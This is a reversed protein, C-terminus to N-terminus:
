EFEVERGAKATIEGNLFVTTGHVLTRVPWGKLTWGNYPSWNAKNFLKGNEITKEKNMDVLVLDADYGPEIRGKNKVRFIEYPRECCWHSIEELTCHGENSRNFMLPLLTEVGPMGSPAKGFPQEKEEITHPAHDTAMIDIVGDKLAQWLAPGHEATRVPPNMQVYTGLRDYDEPAKLLFHQPCLEVTIHETKNERLFEAEDKTTLHLIHLRRNYKKSLRVAQQTALMAAEVSRIRYHDQVDTSGAYAKYNAQITAEDEAHVAIIRDGNGFIEDLAEEESVLLNGTSSGMFIKIGPVNPVSNIEDLNHGTAGIFFNYNAVCKEAALAKKAAMSDACITNPVTNPMEFFSTVGGAAAGRSGTELDEKHELGPDRFHVQDDLAGYLIHLGSADITEDAPDTLSPGVNTITGDTILIDADRRTGHNVLTGNKILTTTM